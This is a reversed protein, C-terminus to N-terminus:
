RDRDAAVRGASRHGGVRGDRVPGRDGGPGAWSIRLEAAARTWAMHGAKWAAFEEFPRSFRDDPRAWPVGATIKGHEGCVIRPLDYELFTRKGHVDLTRWRVVDSEAVKGRRGCKPCRCRTAEDPEVVIVLVKEEPGTRRPWREIYTRLVEVHETDLM